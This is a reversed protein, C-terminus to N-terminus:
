FYIEPVELILFYRMKEAVRFGVVIYISTKEKVGAHIAGLGPDM